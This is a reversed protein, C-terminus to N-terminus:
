GKAGRGPASESLIRDRAAFLRALVFSRFPFMWWYDRSVFKDAIARLESGLIVGREDRMARLTEFYARWEFVARLTVITPLLCWYALWFGVWALRRRDRLHVLEHRLLIIGDGTGVLDRPIYITNWRLLGDREDWPVIRVAPFEELIAAACSVYRESASV